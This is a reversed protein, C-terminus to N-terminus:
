QIEVEAALKRARVIDRRQTGKDGGCLLIILVGSRQVFYV